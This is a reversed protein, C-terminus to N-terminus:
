FDTKPGFALDGADGLGPVIYGRPNLENDIQAIWLETDEPVNANVYDVGEQAALISMIHVKSPTGFQKLAELVTVMSKGSALMPDALILTKGEISPSAAYEVVIEFADKGDPHHRYASIFSNESGDFYNTIGEHLPLGARLISCVVIDEKSLLSKHVGLPTQIDQTGYSLTKSLEYSLIEGVREINRKFRMRDKQINVDRLESMFRHILSPQNSFNHIKM